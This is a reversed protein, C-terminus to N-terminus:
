DNALRKLLNFALVQKGQELAKIAKRIGEKIEAVDTVEDAKLAARETLRPASAKEKVKWKARESVAPKQSPVSSASRNKKSAKSDSGDDTHLSPMQLINKPLPAPKSKAKKKERVKPARESKPPEKDSLLDYKIGVINRGEFPRLSKPFVLFQRGAGPEFGVIGRDAKNGTSDQFVTMLRKSKVESQLERDKSPEVFVIRPEPHGCQKVVDSFRATKM